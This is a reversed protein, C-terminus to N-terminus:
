TLFFGSVQDVGLQTLISHLDKHNEHVLTVKNEWERLACAAIELALPDRDCGIYMEIEPHNELIARAHGCAGLTGDFFTKIKVDSFLSVVEDKMVPIHQDKM